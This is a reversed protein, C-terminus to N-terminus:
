KLRWRKGNKIGSITGHRVGYHRAIACVGEGNSLRRKIDLVDSDALVAMGNKSGANCQDHKIRDQINSARTDYRLNSSNNNKCDGDNHCVDLGKPRKGIFASAVLWHVQKVVQNWNGFRDKYTLNVVMRGDSRETQKMILECFRVRNPLSKVRGLNSVMYRDEFKPIEKWIEKM